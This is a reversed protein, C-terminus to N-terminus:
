SVFRILKSIYVDELMYYKLQWNSYRFLKIHDFMMKRREETALTLHSRPQKVRRESRFSKPERPSMHSRMGEISASKHDCGVVSCIYPEQKLHIRNWHLDLSGENTFDKGCDFCTLVRATNFYKLCIHVITRSVTPFNQGCVDCLVIDQKNKSGYQGELVKLQRKAKIIIDSDEPLEKLGDPLHNKLVTLPASQGGHDNSEEDNNEVAQNASKLMKLQRKAILVADSDGLPEDLGHPLHEEEGSSMDEDEKPIKDEDGNETVMASDEVMAIPPHNHESKNFRTITYWPTTKQAFDPADKPRRLCLFLSVPCYKKPQKPNRGKDGLHCIVKVQNKPFDRGGDELKNKSTSRISFKFNSKEEYEKLARQFEQYNRFNQGQHLAQKQHVNVPGEERLPIVALDSQEDTTFENANEIKLSLDDGSSLDDDKNPKWDEAGDGAKESDGVEDKPDDKASSLKAGWDVPPHNHETKNFHTIIYEKKRWDKTTKVWLMIFVPCSERYSTVRNKDGQEEEGQYCILKVERKPPADENDENYEESSTRIASFKFNSQEEYERVARQFERYSAFCQGEGFTYEQNAMGHAACEEQQDSETEMVLDANESGTTIGEMIKDAGDDNGEVEEQKVGIDPAEPSEKRKRM